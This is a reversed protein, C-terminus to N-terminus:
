STALERDHEGQLEGDLTARLHRELGDLYQKMNWGVRYDGAQLAIGCVLGPDLAFHLDARQTVQENLVDTIQKRQKDSLEFTSYIVIDGKEGTIISSIKEANENLRGTLVRIMQRELEVDALERLAQRMAAIIQTEARQQLDRLFRDKEQRIAQQWQERRWEVEAHADHLLQSRRQEAEQRAEALVQDREADIEARQQQYAAVEREAQQRKEEAEELRAAIKAERENMANIVPKYLFIRLLVLLIVFNIIQAVFTFLDIQM